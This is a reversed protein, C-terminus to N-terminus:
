RVRRSGFSIGSLLRVSVHVISMASAGVRSHAHTHNHMTHCPIEFLGESHPKMEHIVHYKVPAKFYCLVDLM